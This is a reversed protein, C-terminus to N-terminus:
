QVLHTSYYICLDTTHLCHKNKYMIVHVSNIYQVTLGFAKISIQTSLSNMCLAPSQLKQGLARSTQVLSVATYLKFAIFLVHVARFNSPLLRYLYKTRMQSDSISPITM